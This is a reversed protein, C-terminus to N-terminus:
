QALALMGDWLKHLLSGALRLLENGQPRTLSLGVIVTVLNSFTLNLWDKKGMRDVAEGLYKFQRDAIAAQRIDFEHMSLLTAKIEKLSGFVYEKETATFPSNDVGESAAANALAREQGVGAWLDPAEVEKRLEKLWTTCSRIRTKWTGEHADHDIRTNSGPSFENAFAGFRMYYDTPTHRLVSVAVEDGGGMSSRFSEHDRKEEWSFDAADFGANTVLHFVDARETQKLRADTV